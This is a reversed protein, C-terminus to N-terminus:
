KRAAEILEAYVAETKEARRAWTYESQAKEHGADALRRCLPADDLLRITKRVLSDPDDPNFLLADKEHEVFGEIGGVKSAVVPKRAAWAELVVIGFTEYLSPLMFVDCAAYADALEQSNPALGHIVTVRDSLGLEAARRKIKECYDPDIAAGILALRAKPHQRLVPPLAEVLLAQNKQKMMRGVYLLIRDDAPIDHKARFAAGSGSEFFSIDVGNPLYLVRQSPYREQMLEAERRGVCFIASAHAFVNRAGFLMGFPKGWDITGATYGRHRESVHQPLDAIGGHITIVCPIRRLRAASLVIGGLRSASHCHILDVSKERLLKKLVDFSLFAGGDRDMLARMERKLGLYPYFYNFREVPIGHLIASDPVGKIRPCLVKFEHDRKMLELSTKFVVTETGGWEDPNLRRLVHIVRKSM